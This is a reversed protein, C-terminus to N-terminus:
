QTEHHLVKPFENWKVFEECDEHCWAVKKDPFQMALQMLVSAISKSSEFDIVELNDSTVRSVQRTNHYIVIM